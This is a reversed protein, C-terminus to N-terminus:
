YERTYLRKNIEPQTSHTTTIGFLEGDFGFLVSINRTKDGLSLNRIDAAKILDKLAVLDFSLIEKFLSKKKKDKEFHTHSLGEGYGLDIINRIFVFFNSKLSNKLLFGQLDDFAFGLDEGIKSDNIVFALQIDQKLSIQFIVRM